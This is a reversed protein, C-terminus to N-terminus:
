KDVPTLVEKGIRKVSTEVWEGVLKGKADPKYIAIGLYGGGSKPGFSCSLRDEEAFCISVEVYGEYKSEATYVRGDIKKITVTAKYIEDAASTIKSKYKGAYEFASAEDACAVSAAMACAGAFVLWKLKM